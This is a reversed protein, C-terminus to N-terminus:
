AEAAELRAFYTAVERWADAGGGFGRWHKRLLGVLAYARDISVVYATRAAGSRRV